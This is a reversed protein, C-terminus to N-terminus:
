CAYRIDCTVWVHEREREGVHACMCVCECTVNNRAACSDIDYFLRRESSLWYRSKAAQLM